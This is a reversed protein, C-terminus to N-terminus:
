ALFASGLTMLIALVICLMHLLMLVLWRLLTVLKGGGYVKRMALPLYIVMWVLLIFHTWGWGPPVAIQLSLMAFAFANAHLAFLLHAGFRRGTGLYLLKLLLAFFPMLAFLAYPGYSFFTKNMQRYVDEKPQSLFKNVREGWGHHLTDVATGVRGTIDEGDSKIRLPAGPKAPTAAQGIAVQGPAVEEDFNLIQVGSLKFLAFFILSFTLYLRLPQVYRVRRGQIYELTLRGPKLLLLWLSKWLKGELAVYHGIFEHLFERTSPPHLTTEQSCQHCFNGAIDAFCNPCTGPAAHLM